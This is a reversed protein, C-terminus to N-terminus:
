HVLAACAVGILGGTSNSQSAERSVRHSESGRDHSFTAYTTGAAPRLLQQLGLSGQAVQDLAVPVQRHLGQSGPVLLAFLAGGGQLQGEYQYLDALDALSGQRMHQVHLTARKATCHGAEEQELEWAILFQRSDTKQVSDHQKCRLKLLWSEHQTGRQSCSAAQSVLPTAWVASLSLEPPMALVSCKTGSCILVDTDVHQTVRSHWAQQM